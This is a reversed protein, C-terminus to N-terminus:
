NERIRCLEAAYDKHFHREVESGEELTLYTALYDIGFCQINNKVLEAVEKLNWFGSKEVLAVTFGELSCVDDRLHAEGGGFDIIRKLDAFRRRGCYFLAKWSQFARQTPDKEIKMRWRHCALAFSVFRQASFEHKTLSHNSGWEYNDVELWNSEAHSDIVYDEDVIILGKAISCLLKENRVIRGCVLHTVREDFEDCVEGGLELVMSVLASRDRRVTSTFCIRKMSVIPTKVILADECDAMSSLNNSVDSFNKHFWIHIAYFLSKQVALFKVIHYGAEFGAVTGSIKNRQDQGYPETLLLMNQDNGEPDTDFPNLIQTAIPRPSSEKWGYYQPEPLEVHRKRASRKSLETDVQARAKKEQERQKEKEAEITRVYQERQMALKALKEAIRRRDARCFPSIDLGNLLFQTKSNQYSYELLIAASNEAEVVLWVYGPENIKEQWSEIRAQMRDYDTTRRTSTWPIKSTQATKVVAEGLVRNVSTDNWTDESLSSDLTKQTSIGDVYAYAETLNLVEALNTSAQEELNKKDCEAVSNHSLTKQLTFQVQFSSRTQCKRENEELLVNQSQVELLQDEVRGTSERTEISNHQVVDMVYCDPAEFKQSKNFTNIPLENGVNMGDPINSRDSNPKQETVYMWLQDKRSYNKFSQDQFLYPQIPQLQNQIISEIIWSPDLVPIQWHPAADACDKEAGAIIETCISLQKGYGLHNKVEAGFKRLIDAFIDKESEPLTGLGVICGKFVQSVESAEIPRYLPHKKANVIVDKEICDHLWFSSVISGCNFNTTNNLLYDLVECVMYNVWIKAEQQIKGGHNKIDCFLKKRIEEKAVVIRFSLGTFLHCGSSESKNNSSLTKEWTIKQTFNLGSNGLIGVEKGLLKNGTETIRFKIEKRSENNYDSGEVTSGNLVSPSLEFNSKESKFVLYDSEDLVEQAKACNLLWECTVVKVNNYAKEKLEKILKWDLKRPGVVVHTIDGYVLRDRRGSGVRNTLWKYKKFNEDAIGCLYIICNSMFDNFHLADLDFPVIPDVAMTARQLLKMKSCNSESFTSETTELTTTDSKILHNGGRIQQHDPLRHIISLEINPLPQFQTLQSTRPTSCEVASITRTEYLREPLRYGKEVSKTVWRLRVIKVQDWGWKRAIKYKEGSNLDTVLHTCHNKKMNGAYVGGNAEILHSLTSRDQPAIGSCTIICKSFIQLRHENVFQQDIYKRENFAKANKWAAFIWSVSLVPVAYDIATVFKKSKTDQSDAVLHTVKETFAKSITGGMMKVLSIQQKRTKMEIGSFCVIAGQLTTSWVPSHRKPLREKKKLCTILALTGYVRFRYPDKKVLEVCRMVNLFMPSSSEHLVQMKPFDLYWISKGQFLDEQHALEHLRPSGAVAENVEAKLMWLEYNRVMEIDEDLSHIKRRTTKLPM